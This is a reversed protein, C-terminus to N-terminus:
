TRVPSNVAGWLYNSSNLCEARCVREHEVCMCMAQRRTVMDIQRLSLCILKSNYLSQEVFVFLVLLFAMFGLQFM